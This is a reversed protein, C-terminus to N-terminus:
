KRPLGLLVRLARDVGGYQKALKRLAKDVVDSVRYTIPKTEKAM